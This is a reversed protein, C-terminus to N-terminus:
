LLPTTDDCYRDERNDDCYRDERNDDSYHHDERNGESYHEERTEEAYRQDGNVRRLDEALHTYHQVHNNKWENIMRLHEHEEESDSDLGEDLCDDEEDVEEEIPEAESDSRSNSLDLVGEVSNNSTPQHYVPLPIRPVIVSVPASASSVTMDIPGESQVTDHYHHHNGGNSTPPHLSMHLHLPISQHTNMMTKQLHAPQPIPPPERKIVSTLSVAVPPPPPPLLDVIPTPLREQKLSSLMTPLEDYAKPRRGRRPKGINAEDKPCKHHVLHHRRRFRGGCRLCEFPKVGEHILVHAKLQNSDSFRSSCLNCAYPREGTHVRLHRRLNAVQVFQRECHSCHYPKEGTHLRMHTKLHHDRTFRKHCEKCEFPKEGTHTREHNQLVHKYGFSRHCINCPFEKDKKQGNGNGKVMRTSTSHIAGLLADGDGNGNTKNRDLGFGLLANALATGGLHLGEHVLPGKVMRPGTGNSVTSDADRSTPLDDSGGGGDGESGEKMTVKWVAM